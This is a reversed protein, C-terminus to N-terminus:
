FRYGIRAYYFGGDIGLPSFAPYKTVGTNDDASDYAATLHGNIQEPYRNFLNNAGVALHLGKALNLGLELNTIPITGISEKYYCVGGSCLAGPATADSALDGDDNDWESSPGYIIEHVSVSFAGMTWLAGFNLVVKPSATTLDSMATSNYLQQGGLEAPSAIQGTIRTENWTGGFSYDVHGYTYTQAYNLVFDVGTTRTNLGNAFINIGTSGTALVTPDLSFGSAILAATVNGSGPVTVGNIQGNINGTSVIRDRVEIDYVDVTASLSSLPRFVVGFSYNTSKEPKLGTGLGLLPAGPGNPALQGYATTPGVNVGTYYEEALTPARFGTSVTGRLAFQPTFDYRATAKGVTANGFDSFHEYRGALDVRLADIPKGALDVYFAENQRDKDVAQAPSYGEFSAAGAGPTYSAKNGAVIQYSEKRYEGGFAVNLPGAMGVEFDRNIDLNSTWQTTIFTGDYFDVPTAGTELYLENNASDITYIDAHDEGYESSLDWNWAALNGKLGATLQYDTEKSQEQPGYGYPYFYSTTATTPDTYTAYTPTRYNEYSNAEKYGYTGFSYFQVAGPLDFGSNYSVLKIHSEADGQIRNSYPYGAFNPMNSDPYTALLAPDIVRPDIDGRNTHAHNKIEGTVNFFSSSDDLPAFGANANVDSTGGGGDFYGGYLADASGGSSNKKLIINIVGAIADSGYQAAAGETLVEIHDVAALPIFSLDAGAGGQFPGSDVALNATSHRRKGNILILVHNPSLGRLKAQITQNELDSGFAQMVFSPVLNALASMLDPKGSETLQTSTVIQIPAPSEAAELGGQRTGTVIVEQLTSESATEQAVEQAQVASAAIAAAVAAMVAVSPIAKVLSLSM